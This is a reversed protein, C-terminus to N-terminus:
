RRKKVNRIQFSFGLFKVDKVQMFTKPIEMWKGNVLDVFGKHIIGHHLAFCDLPEYIEDRIVRVATLTDGEQIECIRNEM